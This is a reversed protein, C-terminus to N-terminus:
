GGTQALQRRLLELSWEAAAQQRREGTASLQLETCVTAGPGAILVAMTGASGAEFQAVLCDAGLQRRQREVLETLMAPRQAGSCAELDLGAARALRELGATRSELFWARGLCRRGIVGASVAELAALSLGRALLQQGVADVPDPEEEGSRWRAVVAAGIARHVADAVADVQEPVAGAPFLLKVDVVPAAARFGLRVAQPLDVRGILEQLNSEGAGLTRLTVLLEPCLPFRERLRPELGQLFMARMEEPVGPM